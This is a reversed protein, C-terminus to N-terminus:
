AALSEIVIVLVIVIQSCVRRTLAGGARLLSRGGCLPLLSGCDLPRVAARSCSQTIAQSDPDTNLLAGAVHRPHLEPGRPPSKRRLLVAPLSGARQYHEPHDPAM